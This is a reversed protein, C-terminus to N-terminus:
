QEQVSEELPKANPDLDKGWRNLYNELSTPQFVTIEYAEDTYVNGIIAFGNKAYVYTVINWGYFKSGTIKEEPEGYKQVYESMTAYGSELPDEPTLVQEFVVIGNLTIIEEPRLELPSQFSYKTQNGEITEKKLLGPLKEVEGLKTQGPLTKQLASINETQITSATPFIQTQTPSPTQEQITSSPENFLFVVSIILFLIFFSGLFFFGLWRYKFFLTKLWM